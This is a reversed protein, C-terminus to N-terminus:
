FQTYLEEVFADIDTEPIEGGIADIGLSNYTRDHDIDVFFGERSGSLFTRRIGATSRAELRTADPIHRDDDPIYRERRDQREITYDHTGAFTEFASDAKEVLEDGQVEYPLDVNGYTTAGTRSPQGQLGALAQRMERM